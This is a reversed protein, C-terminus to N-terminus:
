PYLIGMEWGHETKSFLERHHMRHPRDEWFEIQQPVVRFGSWFPPRPIVKGEYKKTIDEVRQLFDERKALPQSQLSAWASIQSGRGRDAFYSDAEADSTPIITGEVRVQRKLPMWYCCLAAHPNDLAEHGKRSTHNTFFVFGREDVQRLLVIRASPHGDKTSTALTMADPETLGCQHAEEFWQKFLTIPNPTM